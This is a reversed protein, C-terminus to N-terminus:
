LGVHFQYTPIQLIEIVHQIIQLMQCNVFCLVHVIKDVTQECQQLYKASVLM